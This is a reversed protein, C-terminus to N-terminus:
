QAGDERRTTLRVARRITRSPSPNDARTAPRGPTPRETLATKRRNTTRRGHRDRISRHTREPQTLPGGFLLWDRSIGLGDSVRDVVEVMDRPKMGREWNSWSVYSLGCKEAAQRTTLNGAHLRALLLRYRFQDEPVAGTTSHELETDMPMM